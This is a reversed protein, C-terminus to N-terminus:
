VSTIYFNRVLVNGGTRTSCNAWFFLLFFDYNLYSPFGKSACYKFFETINNHVM